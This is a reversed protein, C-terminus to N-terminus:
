MQPIEDQMEQKKIIPEPEIDLMKRKRRANRIEEQKLEEYKSLKGTKFNIKILEKMTLENIDKDELPVDDIPSSQIIPIPEPPPASISKM